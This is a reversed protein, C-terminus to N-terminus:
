YKRDVIVEEFHSRRQEDKEYELMCNRAAVM